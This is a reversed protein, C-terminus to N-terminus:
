SKTGKASAFLAARPDTDLSQALQDVAAQQAENLESPLDLKFRYHIDGRDKGSLKPPGEGRLRQVTGPETGPKLKLKKSGDLTPVEIIAGSLAEPVSIPVEVELNEGKRKFISSNAVHTVVYLDGDPGGGVGAEGKGAVRIRSGERVGAPINVKYRKVSRIAGSGHCTPCGVATDIVLDANGGFVATSLDIDLPVLKRKVHGRNELMYVVEQGLYCGKTFSVAEDLGAVPVAALRRVDADNRLVIARPKLMGELAALEEPQPIDPEKRTGKSRPRLPVALTDGPMTPEM